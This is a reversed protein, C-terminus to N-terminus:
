SLGLGTDPSDLPPIFVQELLEEIPVEACVDECENTGGLEGEVHRDSPPLPPTAAPPEPGELAPLLHGETSFVFFDHVSAAGRLLLFLYKVTEALFFSEMSDDLQGARCSGRNACCCPHKRRREDSATQLPGCTATVTDPGVAPAHPSHCSAQRLDVGKVMDGALLPIFAGHNSKFGGMQVCGFCGRGVYAHMAM